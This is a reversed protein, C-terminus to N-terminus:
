SARPREGHPLAGGADPARAPDAPPADSQAKRTGLFFGIGARRWAERVAKDTVSKAAILAGALIEAPLTDAGTAIVLEGLQKIKASKLMAAREDLAKLEADYDRPKRM